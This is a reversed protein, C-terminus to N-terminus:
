IFAVIVSQNKDCIFFYSASIVIFFIIEASFLLITQPILQKKYM